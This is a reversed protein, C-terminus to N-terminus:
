ATKKTVSLLITCTAAFPVSMGPCARIEKKEKGSIVSEVFSLLTSYCCNIVSAGFVSPM